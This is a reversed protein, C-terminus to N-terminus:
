GDRRSVTSTVVNLIDASPAEKVSSSPPGLEAQLLGIHMLNPEGPLSACTQTPFPCDSSWSVSLLLSVDCCV